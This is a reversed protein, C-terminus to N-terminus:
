ELCGLTCKGERNIFFAYGDVEVQALGSSFGGQRGGTDPFSVVRDYQFPIVLAGTTDIFGWKDGQRVAALGEHCAVADDYEYGAVQEGQTNIFGCKGDLRRVEALGEQFDEAIAYQPPIVWDGKRDIYGWPTTGDGQRLTTKALGGSFSAAFDFTPPIVWGGTDDIYGWQGGQAVAALGESFNAAGDFWPTVIGGGEKAYARRGVETQSPLAEVWFMGESVEGYAQYQGPLALEMSPYYHLTWAGDKKMWIKGQIVKSLGEHQPKVMYKGDLNLIGWQEGKKIISQGLSFRSAYDFTQGFPNKGATNIFGWRIKQLPSEYMVLALGDHFHGFLTAEQGAAAQQIQAYDLGALPNGGSDLFIVTGKQRLMALGGPFYKSAAYPGDKDYSLPHNLSTESPQCAVFVFWVFCFCAYRM